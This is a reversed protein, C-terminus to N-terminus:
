GVLIVDLFRPGHVGKVRSMEIDATASPGSVTTLPQTEMGKLRAFGEPVTEVVQDAFVVCLHYDPILTLARRGEGVSHRLMITGTFAIAAVCGTIVGEGRNIEEYSLGDVVPFSRNAPLWEQPLREPRLLSTKNRADMAAAVITSIAGAPCHYVVADYDHLRSAFLDLIESRDATGKHRYERPIAAYEAECIAAHDGVSRRINLLIDARAASNANVTKEGQRTEGVM